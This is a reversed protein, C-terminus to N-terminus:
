EVSKAKPAKEKKATAKKAKPKGYEKQVDFSPCAKSAFENHGHVSAEPYDSLLSGILKDM